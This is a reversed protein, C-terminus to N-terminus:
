CSCLIQYRWMKAKVQAGQSSAQCMLCQRTLDKHTLCTCHTSEPKGQNEFLEAEPLEIQELAEEEPAQFTDWEDAEVEEETLAILSTPFTAAFPDEERVRLVDPVADRATTQEASPEMQKAGSLDLKSSRWHETEKDNSHPQPATAVAHVDAPGQEAMFSQPPTQMAGEPLQEENPFGGADAPLFVQKPQEENRAQPQMQPAFILQPGLLQSSGGPAEKQATAPSDTAPFDM